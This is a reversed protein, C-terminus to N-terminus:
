GAARWAFTRPPALSLLSFLPERGRGAHGGVAHQGRHRRPWSEMPTGMLHEPVFLTVAAKAHMALTAEHAALTVFGVRAIRPTEQGVSEDRACEPATTEDASNLRRPLLEHSNSKGKEQKRGDGQERV